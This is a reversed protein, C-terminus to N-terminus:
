AHALRASSSPSPFDLAQRRRAVELIMYVSAFAFWFLWCFYPFYFSLVGDWAFPGTKLIGTMTAPAFSLGCFITVFCLWRPFLPKASKDHLGAVAAAVMQWTTCAWLTDIILWGSDTLAQTIEPAREPRYAAAVWFVSSISVVPVTLAGGILQIFALVPSRGEIRMMQVSLVATWPIYLTMVIMSVLFGVRIGGLHEVYRAALEGAGLAPSPPAPLNFGMMGWFYIFAVLFLPGSWACLMQYKLSTKEDM